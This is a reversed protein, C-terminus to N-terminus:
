HVTVVSSSRIVHNNDAFCSHVSRMSGESAVSMSMSLARVLKVTSASTSRSPQVNMSEDDAPLVPVFHVSDSLDSSPSASSVSIASSQSLRADDVLISTHTPDHIRSRRVCPRRSSTSSSSSSSLPLVADHTPAHYTPASQAPPLSAQHINELIMAANFRQIACAISAHLGYKVEYATFATPRDQAIICIDHILQAADAHLGGFSECSFSKFVQAQRLSPEIHTQSENMDVHHHVHKDRDARAATILQTRSAAKVASPCVPHRCTVDYKVPRNAWYLTVDTTRRDSSNHQNTREHRRVTIGARCAYIEIARQITDHRDTALTGKLYNCALAHTSCHDYGVARRCQGCINPMVECPPLGLNIRTAIIYEADTLQCYRDVPVAVKWLAAGKASTALLRASHYEDSSYVTSLARFKQKEAEHTLIHQLRPTDSAISQYQRLFSDVCDPILKKVDAIVPQCQNQTFEICEDIASRFSSSPSATFLQNTIHDLHLARAASDLYAYSAISTSSRLGFGSMRCPLRLQTIIEDRYQSSTLNLELMRLACELVKNDFEDTIRRTASPRVTRLIYNLKPLMCQRLLLMAPQIHLKSNLLRKFIDDHTTGIQQILLRHLIDDTRGVASGLL